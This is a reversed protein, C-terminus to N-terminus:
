FTEAWKDWFGPEDHHANKMAIDLPLYYFRVRKHRPTGDPNELYDRVLQYEVDNEDFKVEIYINGLYPLMSSESAVFGCEQWHINHDKLWKLVGKRRRDKEFDYILWNKEPYFAIYLVTRQKKRAIADIHEIILPM